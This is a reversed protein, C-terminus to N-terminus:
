SPSGRRGRFQTPTVGEKQTFQRSFFFLDRYGLQGAIEGISLDTERLLHRAHALRQQLLFQMPSQGIVQRFLRSFHAPSLRLEAAMDPVSISSFGAGSRIKDALRLMGRRHVSSPTEPAPGEGAPPSQLLDALIGRLLSEAMEPSASFRQVIRRSAADFFALDDLRFFEPLERCVEGTVVRKTGREEVFDFHIFTIGLPDTENHEADYIGGPRMLACFGPSLALRRSGTDMAGSGKWVLWFEADALQLSNERSRRWGPGCSIRGCPDHIRLRYRSFSSIM